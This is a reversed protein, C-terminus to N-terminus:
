ISSSNLESVPMASMMPMQMMRAKRPSVRPKVAVRDNPSVTV